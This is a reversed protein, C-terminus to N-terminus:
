KSDENTVKRPLNPIPMWHTVYQGYDMVWEWEYGAIGCVDFHYPYKMISPYGELPKRVAVSCEYGNFVLVPIDYKPLKRKCNIWPSKM